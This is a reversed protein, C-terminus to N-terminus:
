LQQKKPCSQDMQCGITKPFGVIFTVLRLFFDYLKQLRSLSLLFPILLKSILLNFNIPSFTEGEIIQEVFSMEMVADYCWKGNHKILVNKISKRAEDQIDQHHALTHLCFIMTTSSTEFRYLPLLSFINKWM